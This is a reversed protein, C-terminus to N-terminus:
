LGSAAVERGAWEAVLRWFEPASGIGLEKLFWAPYSFTFDFGVVMRPTERSMEILWAM